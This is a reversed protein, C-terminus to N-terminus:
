VSPCLPFADLQSSKSGKKCGGARRDVGWWEGMKDKLMGKKLRRRRLYHCLWDNVVVVVFIM